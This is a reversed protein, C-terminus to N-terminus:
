RQYLREAACRPAARPRNPPRGPPWAAISAPGRRRLPDLMGGPGAGPRGGGAGVQCAGFSAGIAELFAVIKHNSYNQASTRIPRPRPTPRPTTPEAAAAAAPWLRVARSAHLARGDAGQRRLRGAAAEVHWGGRDRQVGPAGPHAGGRARGGGGPRLRGAPPRPPAARPAEAAACRQTRKCAAGAHAGSGHPAAMRGHPGAAGACMGWGVRVVLAIAARQAPKKVQRVYYSRARRAAHTLQTLQTSHPLERARRCRRARRARCARCARRACRRRRRLGAMRRRLRARRPGARELQM